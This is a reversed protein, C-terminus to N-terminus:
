HKTVAVASIDTLLIDSVAMFPLVNLNGPYIFCNKRKMVYTKLIQRPRYRLIDPHPKVIVNFGRLNRLVTEM